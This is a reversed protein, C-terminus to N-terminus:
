QASRCEAIDEVSLGLERAQEEIDDDSAGPAFVNSALGALDLNGLQSVAQGVGGLFGGLGRRRPRNAQAEEIKAQLCQQQAAQREAASVPAPTQPAVALGAGTAGDTALQTFFNSYSGCPGADSTDFAARALEVQDPLGANVRIRPILTEVEISGNSALNELMQIQPGLMNELMQRQAGSLQNLQQRAEALQVEADQIQQQQEPTLVGGMRMLQRTSEYLPGIQEYDLSLMEISMEQAGGSVDAIGDMRVRLPVYNEQDIWVSVSNVDFERGGDAVQSYDIDDALIHFAQRGDVTETGILEADSILQAFQEGSSAINTDRGNELRDSEASAAARMFMAMSGTMVRPDPSAWPEDLSEPSVLSSFSFGANATEQSVVNGVQELGDAFWEMEQPTLSVGNNQRRSIEDPPVLRFTSVPVGNDQVLEVKEYYLMVPVGMTCQNVIYNEVSSKRDYDRRIVEELIEEATQAQTATSLLATLFILAIRIM